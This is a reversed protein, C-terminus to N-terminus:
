ALLEEKGYNDKPNNETDTKMDDANESAQSETEKIEAEQEEAIDAIMKYFAKDENMSRSEDIFYSKTLMDVVKENFSTAKWMLSRRFKVDLSVASMNGYRRCVYRIISYPIKDGSPKFADSFTIDLGYERCIATASILHGKNCAMTYGDCMYMLYDVQRRDYRGKIGDNDEHMSDLERIICDRIDSCSAIPRKSIEWNQRRSARSAQAPRGATRRGHSTAMM